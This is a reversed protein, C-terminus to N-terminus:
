CFPYLPCFERLAQAVAARTVVIRGEATKGAQLVAFLLIPLNAQAVFLNPVSSAPVAQLGVNPVEMKGFAQEVARRLDRAAEEEVSTALRLARTVLGQFDLVERVNQNGPVRQQAFSFRGTLLLAAIALFARRVMKSIGPQVIQHVCTAVSNPHLFAALILIPM